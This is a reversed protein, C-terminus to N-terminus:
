LNQAANNVLEECEYDFIEDSILYKGYTEKVEVGEDYVTIEADDFIKEYEGNGIYEYNKLFVCKEGCNNVFIYTKMGCEEKKILAGTEYFTVVADRIDVTLNSRVCLLDANKDNEMLTTFNPNNTIEKLLKM